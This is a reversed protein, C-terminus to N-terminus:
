QKAHLTPTARQPCISLLTALMPTRGRTDAEQCPLRRISRGVVVVVAVLRAQARIYGRAAPRSSAASELRTPLWTCSPTLCAPLSPRSPEACGSGPRPSAPHPLAARFDLRGPVAGEERWSVAESCLPRRGCLRAALRPPLFGALQESQLPRLRLSPPGRCLVETM